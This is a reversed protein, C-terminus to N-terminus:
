FCMLDGATGPPITLWWLAQLRACCAMFAFGECTYRAAVSCSAPCPTWCWM